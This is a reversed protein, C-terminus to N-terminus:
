RQIRTCAIRALYEEYNFHPSQETTHCSVCIQRSPRRVIYRTDTPHRSHDTDGGHCTACGVGSSEVALSDLTLTNTTHCGVCDLRGESHKAVLTQWAKAHATAKWAKAPEQHCGLCGTAKEGAKPIALALVRQTAAVQSNGPSVTYHTEYFEKVATEVNPNRAIQADVPRQEVAVADVHKRADLYVDAVGVSHGYFSSPLLYARTSRSPPKLDAEHRGSVVLDIEPVARTCADVDAPALQSLLLLLDVAPRIKRSSISVRRVIEAADIDGARRAAAIVGIRLEGVRIIRADGPAQAESGSEVIALGATRASELVKEKPLALDFPGIGVAQYGMRQLQGYIFTLTEPEARSAPLNDGADVVLTASATKRLQDILTARRALGGPQLAQCGCVDLVGRLNATYIVKLDPTRGKAVLTPGPQNAANTSLSFSAAVAGLVCAITLARM